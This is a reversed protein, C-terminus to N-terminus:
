HVGSTGSRRRVSPREQLEYAEGRELDDEVPSESSSTEDRRMM